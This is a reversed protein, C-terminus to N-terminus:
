KSVKPVSLFKTQASKSFLARYSATCKYAQPVANACNINVIDVKSFLDNQSQSLNVAVQAASPSDKTNASLDLAGTVKNSLSLASLVTGSPMDNGIAQILDSFRVETGLVQSIVKIDGTIEKADKQVKALNQAQLQQNTTNISAQFTKQQQNIYEWGGALIVVMGAIAVAVGALWNRLRTNQRGYRISDAYSAPLLNIM